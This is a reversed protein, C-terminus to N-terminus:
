PVGCPGTRLLVIKAREKGPLKFEELKIMIGYKKLYAPVVTLYPYTKGPEFDKPYMHVCIRISGDIYREEMISVQCTISQNQHQLLVRKEGFYYHPVYEGLVEKDFRLANSAYEKRYVDTEHVHLENHIEIKADYSALVQPPGLLKRDLGRVSSLNIVEGTTM